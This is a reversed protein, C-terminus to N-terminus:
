KPSEVILTIPGDNVLNVAMEEGYVGTQVDIGTKRMQEVFDLYLEKGDDFPAANDFSPRRGKRTDAAVTFNSVVLLKGGVDSCSLNMKEDADEFVRLGSIRGAIWACDSFTDRKQAAVFVVLGRDITGVTEGAVIVSASLVRQVVAIM